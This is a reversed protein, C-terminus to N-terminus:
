PEFLTKSKKINEDTFAEKPRGSCLADYSDTRGRKIDAFWM